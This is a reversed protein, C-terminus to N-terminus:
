GHSTIDFSVKTSSKRNLNISKRISHNISNTYSQRNKKVKHSILSKYPKNSGISCERCKQFSNHVSNWSDCCLSFSKQNIMHSNSEKILNSNRSNRKHNIIQTQSFAGIPFASNWFLSIEQFGNKIIDKLQAYMSKVKSISNQNQMIQTSILNKMNKLHGMNNFESWITETIVDLMTMDLINNSVRVARSLHFKM